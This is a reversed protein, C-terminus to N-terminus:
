DGSEEQQNNSEQQISVDKNSNSILNNSRNNQQEKMTSRKCNNKCYDWDVDIRDITTDKEWYECVHSIYSKGM